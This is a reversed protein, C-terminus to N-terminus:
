SADFLRRQTAPRLVGFLDSFDDTWLPARDFTPQWIRYQTPSASFVRNRQEALRKLPHLRDARRCLFVWVSAASQVEPMAPSQIALVSLGADHALRALLPELQFHRSSVHIALLGTQELLDLYLGIAERTLLHVPVADSSYADVILFDFPALGRERDAALSIRADGEVVEVEASSSGLFTFL